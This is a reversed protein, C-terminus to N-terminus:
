YDYYVIAISNVMIEEQNLAVVYCRYDKGDVNILYLNAGGNTFVDYDEEYLAELVTNSKFASSNRTKITVHSFKNESKINPDLIRALFCMNYGVTYVLYKFKLKVMKHEPFADKKMKREEEPRGSGYYITVHYDRPDVWNDNSFINNWLDERDSTTVVPLLYDSVIETSRKQTLQARLGLFIYDYESSM